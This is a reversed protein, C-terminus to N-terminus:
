AEQSNIDVPGAMWVTTGGQLDNDVVRVVVGTMQPYLGVLYGALSDIADRLKEHQGLDTIMEAASDARHSYVWYRKKTEPM